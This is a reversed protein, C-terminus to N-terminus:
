DVTKKWVTGQTKSETCRLIHVECSFLSNSSNLLNSRGSLFPVDNHKAKKRYEFALIMVSKFLFLKLVQMASSTYLIIFEIVTFAWRSWKIHEILGTTIVSFRM